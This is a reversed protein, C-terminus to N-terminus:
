GPNWLCYDSLGQPELDMSKRSCGATKYSVSKMEHLNQKHVETDYKLKKLLLVMKGALFVAKEPHLRLWQASSSVKRETGQKIFGKQIKRAGM